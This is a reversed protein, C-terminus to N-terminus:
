PKRGPAGPSMLQSLKQALNPDLKKLAQFERAAAEADGKKAYYVCLAYRAQADQPSLRVAEMLSKGAKDLFGLNLYALGLNVHAKAM